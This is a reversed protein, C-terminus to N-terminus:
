PPLPALVRWVFLRFASFQAGGCKFPMESTAQRLSRLAMATDDQTINSPQTKASAAAMTCEHLAHLLVGSNIVALWVKWEHMGILTKFTLFGPLVHVSRMKSLTVVMALQRLRHM